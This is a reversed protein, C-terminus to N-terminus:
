HSAVSHGNASEAPSRHSPEGRDRHRLGDVYDGARQRLDIAKTRLEGTKTAVAHRTEKGPKPAFLLGVVAGVAAGAILGTVLKNQKSM